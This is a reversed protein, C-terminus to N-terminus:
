NKKADMKETIGQKISGFNNIRGSGQIANTPPNQRM